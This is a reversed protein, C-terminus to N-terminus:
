GRRRRTIVLGAMALTTAVGPTPIRFAVGTTAGIADGVTGSLQGIYDAQGSLIDFQYLEFQSSLMYLQGQVEFLSAPEIGLQYEEFVSGDLASFRTVTGHLAHVAIMEGNAIQHLDFYLAADSDIPTVAEYTGAFPDYTSYFAQGGVDYTEYVSMGIRDDFTRALGATYQFGSTYHDSVDFVVHVESTVMNYQVLQGTVNVLMTDDGTYLIENIGGRGPTLIQFVESAELTNLDVSYIRADAGAVYFDTVGAVSVSGLLGVALASHVFRM